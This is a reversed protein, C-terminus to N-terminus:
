QRERRWGRSPRLRTHFLASDVGPGLSVNGQREFNGARRATPPTEASCPAPFRTWHLSPRTSASKVMTIEVGLFHYLVSEDASSRPLDQVWGTGAISQLEVVVLVKGLLFECAM